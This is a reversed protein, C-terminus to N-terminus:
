KPSNLETHRIKGGTRGVEMMLAYTVISLVLALICAIKYKQHAKYALYLTLLSIGGLIQISWIAKEAIEEHSEILEKSINPINKLAESAEEGTMFGPIAILATFVFTALGTNKISNNKLYIGFAIIILGFFTGIIPFHTLSLHLYTSNM